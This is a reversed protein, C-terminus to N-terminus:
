EPTTKKVNINKTIAVDFPLIAFTQPPGSPAQSKRGCGSLAVLLVLGFLPFQLTKM